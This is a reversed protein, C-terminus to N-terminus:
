GNNVDTTRDNIIEFLIMAYESDVGSKGTKNLEDISKQNYESYLKSLEENNMKSWKEKLKEVDSLIPEEKKIINPMSKVADTLFSLDFGFVKKMTPEPINCRDPNLHEALGSPDTNIIFDNSSDHKEIDAFTIEALENASEPVREILGIETRLDNILRKLDVKGSEVSDQVKQLMNGFNNIMVNIMSQNNKEIKLLRYNENKINVDLKMCSTALVDNRIGYENKLDNMERKTMRKDLIVFGIMGVVVLSTSILMIKLGRTEETNQNVSDAYQKTIGVFELKAIELIEESTFDHPPPTASVRFAICGITQEQYIKKEMMLNNESFLQITIPRPLDSVELYELGLEFEYTATANGSSGFEFWTAQGPEVGEPARQFPSVNPNDDHRQKFTQSIAPDHNIHFYFPAYINQHIMDYECKDYNITESEQAYAYSPILLLILFLFIKEHM